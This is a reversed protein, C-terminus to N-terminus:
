FHRWPPFTFMYARVGPAISPKMSPCWRASDITEDISALPVISLADSVPCWWLVVAAILPKMSPCWPVMMTWRHNISPYWTWPGTQKKRRGGNEANKQSEDVRFSFSRTNSNGMWAENLRLLRSSSRGPAAPQIARAAWGGISMLPPCEM